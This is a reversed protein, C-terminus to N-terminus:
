ARKRLLWLNIETKIQHLFSILNMKLIIAAIVDKCATLLNHICTLNSKEGADWLYVLNIVVCDPVLFERLSEPDNLNGEFLEVGQGFRQENLDRQKDRSLVRIEYGGERLLDSVLRKGIFGSAGTIAITTIFPM